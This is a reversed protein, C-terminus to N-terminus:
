QKHATGSAITGPSTSILDVVKKDEGSITFAVSRSADIIIPTGEPILAPVSKTVTVTTTFDIAGSCPKNPDYTVTGNSQEEHLLLWLPGAGRFNSFFFTMTGEASFLGNEVKFSGTETLPVPDRPLDPPISFSTGNYLYGYDGSLKCGKNNEKGDKSFASPSGLVLCFFLVSLGMLKNKM